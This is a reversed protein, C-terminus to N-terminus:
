KSFTPVCNRLTFTAFPADDVFASFFYRPTYTKLECTVSVRFAQGPALRLAEPLPWVVNRWVSSYAAGDDVNSSFDLANFDRVPLSDDGYPYGTQALRKAGGSAATECWMWCVVANVLAPTASRFVLERTQVEPLEADFALYEFAKANWGWGSGGTRAIADGIPLRSVLAMTPPAVYIDSQAGMQDEHLCAPSMFTAARSPVVTSTAVGARARLDRLAACVGESGAFYGLVEHLLVDVGVAKVAKVVRREYTMGPVVTCRESAGLERLRAEAPEV